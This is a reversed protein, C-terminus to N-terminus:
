VSLYRDYASQYADIVDPVGLANLKDVYAQWEADNNIDMDGIIFKIIAEYLYTNIDPSFTAYIETEDTTLSFPPLSHDNDATGWVDIWDAFRTVGAINYMTYDAYGPFGYGLYYVEAATQSLGDPNNLVADTYWPTGDDQYEFSVGEVGYNMLLSGEETYLYNILMCATVLEEETANCSIAWARDSKFLPDIGQTIHLQQNKDDRPMYGATLYGNPDEVSIMDVFECYTYTVASKGLSMYEFGTGLAGALDNTYFDKYILDKEYWRNMIQLFERYAETVPGYVLGGEDDLSFGAMVDKGSSLYRNGDGTVGGPAGATHMLPAELDYVSKLKSLVDEYEEYTVPLDMGQAELWDGRIVMGTNPTMEEMGLEYFCVISGNENYALRRFQDQQVLRYYDPAYTPLYSALDVFVDNEVASSIGETYYNATGVVAPLDDAAVLLPFQTELATGSYTQWDLNVGTRSILERSIQLEDYSQIKGDLMNNMESLITLTIEGDECLKPYEEPLASEIEPAATEEFDSAAELEPEYVQAEAHSEPDDSSLQASASNDDSHKSELGTSSGCSTLMALLMTGVLLLVLTNKFAKM